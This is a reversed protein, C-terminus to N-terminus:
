RHGLGEEVITLTSWVRRDKTKKSNSRWAYYRYASGEEGLLREARVEDLGLSELFMVVKRHCDDVKDM